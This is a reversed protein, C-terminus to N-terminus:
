SNRKAFYEQLPKVTWGSKQLAKIAHAAAKAGTLTTIMPSKHLVAM